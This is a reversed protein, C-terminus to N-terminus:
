LVGPRRLVSPPGNGFRAPSLVAPPTRRRDSLADLLERFREKAAAVHRGRPYTLLYVKVAEADGAADAQRWMATDADDATPQSAATAPLLPAPAPLSLVPVDLPMVADVPLPAVDPVPAPVALLPAAAALPRKEVDDVPQAAVRPGDHDAPMPLVFEADEDPVAPVGAIGAVPLFGALLVTAALLRRGTRFPGCDITRKFTQM